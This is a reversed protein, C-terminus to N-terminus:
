IWDLNIKLSDFQPSRARLRINLPAIFNPSQWIFYAISCFQLKTGSRRFLQGMNGLRLKSENKLRGFHEQRKLCGGVEPFNESFLTVGVRRSVWIVGCIAFSFALFKRKPRIQLVFLNVPNKLNDASFCLRIVGRILFLSRSVSPQYLHNYFFVNSFCLTKKVVAIYAWQLSNLLLDGIM